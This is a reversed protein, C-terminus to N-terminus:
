LRLCRPGLPPLSGVVTLQDPPPRLRDFQPDWVACVDDARKQKVVNQSTQNPPQASGGVQLDQVKQEGDGITVRVAAPALRQLFAPSFWEGPEVDDV